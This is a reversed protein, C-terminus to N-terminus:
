ALHRNSNAHKFSLIWCITKKSRFHRELFCFYVLCTSYIVLWHLKCNINRIRLLSWVGLRTFFLFIRKHNLHTSVANCTIYMYAETQYLGKVLVPFFHSVQTFDLQLLFGHVHHFYIFAFSGFWVYVLGLAASWLSTVEKNYEMQLKSKTTVMTITWIHRAKLFDSCSFDSSMPLAKFLTVKPWKESSQLAFTSCNLWWHTSLLTLLIYSNSSMSTFFRSDAPSVYHSIINFCLTRFAISAKVMVHCGGDTTQWRSVKWM